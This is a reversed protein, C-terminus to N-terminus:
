EKIPGTTYDMGCPKITDFCLGFLDTGRSELDFLARAAPELSRVHAAKTLIPLTSRKKMEKLLAQGRGSFALVRLYQPRRPMDAERLGLFARLALRRIRAHAYRRTKALEYFEELTAAQRASRILRAPLGERGASDALAAFDAESMARLRALMAREVNEMRALGARQLTEATGPPTWREVEAWEGARALSRIHSASAFDETPSPSDHSAGKREVALPRIPSHLANLSRLYEVALNDNPHSLLEPLDGGEGEERLLARVAQQRAAAFPTGGELSRALAQRYPESDLVGALRALGTADASESGFSLTDVVGTATLTEVAGRAFGEASSIAWPLPLELVLDAGGRIALASRTWKDTLACQGRQTWSGSMVCLVATEEGLARRIQAIHWAHGMHFPDYEAVIGAVAM